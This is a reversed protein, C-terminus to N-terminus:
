HALASISSIVASSLILRASREFNCDVVFYPIEGLSRTRTKLYYIRFHTPGTRTVLTSFFITWTESPTLTFANLRTCIIGVRVPLADSSSFKDVM